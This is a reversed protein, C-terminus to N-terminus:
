RLFGHDGKPLVELNKPFPTRWRSEERIRGPLRGAPTSDIEVTWSYNDSMRKSNNSVSRLDSLFSAAYNPWIVIIGM